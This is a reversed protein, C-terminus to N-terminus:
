KCHISQIDPLGAVSVDRAYVVSCESVTPALKRVLVASTDTYACSIWYGRGENAPFHWTATTSKRSRVEKDYVLSAGESPPGDYFGVAKLEAETGEYRVEWSPPPALVRSEASIKEPCSISQEAAMVDTQPLALAATIVMVRM